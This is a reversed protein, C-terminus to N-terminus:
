IPIDFHAFRTVLATKAEDTFESEVTHGKRHTHERKIDIVAWHGNSFKLSVVTSHPISDYTFSVRITSWLSM